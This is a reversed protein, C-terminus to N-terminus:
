TNLKIKYDLLAAPFIKVENLRSLVSYTLLAACTFFVYAVVRSIHKLLNVANHIIVCVHCEMDIASICDHDTHIILSFVPFFSVSIFCILLLFATISIQQKM